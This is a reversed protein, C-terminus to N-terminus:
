SSRRPIMDAWPPASRPGSGSARLSPSGCRAEPRVRPGLRGSRNTSVILAAGGTREPVTTGFIWLPSASRPPTSPSHASCRPGTPRNIWPRAPPTRPPRSPRAHPSPCLAPHRALGRASHMTATLGALKARDARLSLFADATEYGIFALALGAGVLLARRSRRTHRASRVEAPALALVLSPCARAAILGGTSSDLADASRELEADPEYPFGAARAIAECLGPVAAGPGAVRLVVKSRDEEAVGFRLSQKIEITLRQLVPQLHPLLSSGVLTPYAPIPAHPAPVGASLLSSGARQRARPHHAAVGRCGWRARLPRCLRVALNELGTAITRVLLLRGPCGVALQTSHEGFWVIASIEDPM